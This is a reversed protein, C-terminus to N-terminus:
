DIFKNRIQASSKLQEKEVTIENYTFKKQSMPEMENKSGNYLVTCVLTEKELTLLFVKEEFPM